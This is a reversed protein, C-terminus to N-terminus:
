SPCLSPKGGARYQGEHGEGRLNGDGLDGFSQSLEAKQDESKRRSTGICLFATM